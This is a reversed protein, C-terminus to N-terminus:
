EEMQTLGFGTAITGSFLVQTCALSVPSPSFPPSFLPSLSSPLPSSLAGEGRRCHHTIVFVTGANTQNNPKIWVDVSIENQIFANVTTSRVLAGSSPPNQILYRFDLTLNIPYWIAAYGTGSYTPNAQVLSLGIMSLVRLLKDEKLSARRLSNIVTVSPTRLPINVDKAYHVFGDNSDVGLQYYYNLLEPFTYERPLDSWSVYVITTVNQMKVTGHSLDIHSSYWTSNQPSQSSTYTKIHPFLHGGYGNLFLGDSAALVCACWLLFLLAKKM